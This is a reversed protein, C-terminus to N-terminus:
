ATKMWMEALVLQERLEDHIRGNSAVLNRTSLEFEEAGWVDTV